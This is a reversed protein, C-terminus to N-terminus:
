TLAPCAQEAKGLWDLPGEVLCEVRSFRSGGAIRCEAAEILHQAATATLGELQEDSVPLRYYRGARPFMEYARYARLWTTGCRNCRMRTIDWGDDTIGIDAEQTCSAQSRPRYCPCPPTSATRNM